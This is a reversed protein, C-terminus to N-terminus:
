ASSPMRSLLGDRPSPSTYLLCAVQTDEIAGGITGSANANFYERTILIQADLSADIDAISLNSAVISNDKLELIVGQAGDSGAFLNIEDATDDMNFGLNANISLSFFSSLLTNTGDQLGDGVPYWVDDAQAFELRSTSTNFIIWTEGVPVDFADRVATDVNGQDKLVDFGIKQGYSLFGILM